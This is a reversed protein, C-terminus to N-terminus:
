SWRAQIMTGPLRRCAHSRMGSFPLAMVASAAIKPANPKEPACRRLMKALWAAGARLGPHRAHGRASPSRNGRVPARSVRADPPTGRQKAAFTRSRELRDTPDSQDFPCIGLYRVLAPNGSSPPIKGSRRNLNGALGCFNGTRIRLSNARLARIYHGNESGNGRRWAGFRHFEWPM